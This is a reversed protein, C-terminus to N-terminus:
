IIFVKFGKHHSNIHKAVKLLASNDLKLHSYKRCFKPLNDVFEICGNPHIIKYTYKSPKDFQRESILKRHEISRVKGKNKGTMSLSMKEKTKNSHKKGRRSESMKQKVNDSIIQNKRKQKIKQKTLDSHKRGSSGEGGDTLNRLIGTELDKRGFVAIMYREHKFAEDETLNSKLILIQEKPPPKHSGKRKRHTVYARNTKGKGIYYPTRDERLYAYTYYNEM